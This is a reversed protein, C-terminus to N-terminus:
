LSLSLSLSLLLPFCLVIFSQRYPYVLSADSRLENFMQCLKALMETTVSPAYARLLDIESAIDPNGIPHCSFADGM